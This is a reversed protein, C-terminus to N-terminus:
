IVRGVEKCRREQEQRANERDQELEEARKLRKLMEVKLREKEAM